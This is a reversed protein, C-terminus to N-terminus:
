NVKSSAFRSIDQILNKMDIPIEDARMADVIATPTISVGYKDQLHQNIASMAEKGPIIELKGKDNQVTPKAVQIPM